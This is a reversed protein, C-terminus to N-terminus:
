QRAAPCPWPTDPTSPKGFQNFGTALDAEVAYIGQCTLLRRELTTATQM